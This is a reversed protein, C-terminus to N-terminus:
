SGEFFLCAPLVQDWIAPTQGIAANRSAEYYERVGHASRKRFSDHRVRLCIGAM